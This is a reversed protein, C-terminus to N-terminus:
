VKVRRYQGKGCVECVRMQLLKKAIVVPEPLLEFTLPNIHQLTNVYGGDQWM